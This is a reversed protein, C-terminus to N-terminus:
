SIAEIAPEARFSLSSDLGVLPVHVTPRRVAYLVALGVLLTLMCIDVVQVVQLPSRHFLLIAVPELVALPIL